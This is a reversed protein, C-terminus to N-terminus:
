PQPAGGAPPAHREWAEAFREADDGSAFYAVGDVLEIGADAVALWARREALLVDEVEAAHDAAPDAHRDCLHYPVARCKGPPAGMYASFPQTTWWLGVTHAHAGCLVCPGGEKALEAVTEALLAYQFEQRPTLAQDPPRTDERRGRRESPKKRRDRNSM